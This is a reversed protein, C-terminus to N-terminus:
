KPTYTMYLKNVEHLCWGISQKYIYLYKSIEPVKQGEILVGQLFCILIQLHVILIYKAGFRRLTQCCWVWCVNTTNLQNLFCRAWQLVMYRQLIPVAGMEDSRIKQLHVLQEANLYEWIAILDNMFVKNKLGVSKLVSSSIYRYFSFVREM